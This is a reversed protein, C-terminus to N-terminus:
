YLPIASPLSCCLAIRFTNLSEPSQVLYLIVTLSAQHAVDTDAAKIADPRELMKGQTSHEQSFM